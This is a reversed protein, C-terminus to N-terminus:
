RRLTASAQGNDSRFRYRTKAKLKRKLQFYGRADTSVTALKRWKKGDRRSQVTVTHRGGPRVQGWLRNRPGDVWFPTDFHALSPKARRSAFRLGSQWGSYSGKASPPEDRWLYQTLLKLRPNRWAVYAAQQLWRDQRSLTV